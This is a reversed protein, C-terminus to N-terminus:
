RRLLQRHCGLCFNQRHCSSCKMPNARAEIAHYFLYNGEHVKNQMTDRRMHCDVCFSQAHCLQCEEGSTQALIRHDKKFSLTHTKPKIAAMNDKHCSTCKLPRKAKREENNHCAHCTEQGPKLYRAEIEDGLKEHQSELVANFPHCTICNFGDKELLVRHKGHDFVSATSKPPAPPGEKAMGSLAVGALGAAFILSFVPIRKM